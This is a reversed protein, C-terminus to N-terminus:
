KAPKTNLEILRDVTKETILRNALDRRAEATDLQERIKKDNGYRQLMEGLRENLEETSIDIKEIKSLEALALGVQVRRIAQERLETERWKEETLNQQELYQQLTMGRYLLNQVFDREISALQDNILVEPTPIDSGKVLQEVLHDRLKDLAEREHQDTLERRIDTRLDDVTKFPGVKAAFEDTLEPLDVTSVKKVDVAFNVLAGALPKHHYDKPFTLPLDVHDGVKKGVLGEEFGPIFSSSGLTLPYEKGTAGAVDKGDKDTGHFDILVEDGDKAAADTEKKEAMGQRMRDIVEDVDKDEVKAVDKKAKLSKYDGLKIAPLVEVDAKFELSENPVYASLDVHPRDLPQVKETELVEIMFANVADEAIEMGLANQDLHKEAVNAPVKGERFGAVKVKKSLRAVTTKKIKALDAADLTVTFAVKTDSTNKRTYKM